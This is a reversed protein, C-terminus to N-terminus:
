LLGQLARQVLGLVRGIKSKRKRKGFDLIGLRFDSLADRLTDHREVGITYRKGLNEVRIVIDSM